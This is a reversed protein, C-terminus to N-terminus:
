REIRFGRKKLLFVGIACAAIFIGIIILIYEDINTTQTEKNDPMYGEKNELYENVEEMTANQSKVGIGAWRFRFFDTISSIEYNNIDENYSPSFLYISFENSQYPSVDALYQFSLPLCPLAAKGQQYSAYIPVERDSEIYNELNKEISENEGNTTLKSYSINGYRKGKFHAGIFGSTINIGSEIPIYPVSKNFDIDLDCYSVNEELGEICESKNKGVNMTKLDKKEYRLTINGYMESISYYRFDKGMFVSDEKVWFIGSYNSSFYESGTEEISTNESDFSISYMINFFRGGFFEFRYGRKCQGLYRIYIMESGRGSTNLSINEVSTGSFNMMSIFNESFNKEKEKFDAYWKYGWGQNESWPSNDQAKVSIAGLFISSVLLLTLIYAFSKKSEM